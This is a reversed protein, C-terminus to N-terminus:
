RRAPCAKRAGAHRAHSRTPRTQRLGRRIEEAGSWEYADVYLFGQAIHIRYLGAHQSEDAARRRLLEVRVRWVRGGRGDACLRARPRSPGRTAPEALHRLLWVEHQLAANDRVDGHVPSQIWPE